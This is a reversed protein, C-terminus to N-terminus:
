PVCVGCVAPYVCQGASAHATEVNHPRCHWVSHGLIRGLVPQLKPNSALQQSVSSWVVAGGHLRRAAAAALGPLAAAARAAAAPLGRQQDAFIRDFWPTPKSVVRRYVPLLLRAASGPAVDSARRVPRSSFHLIEGSSSNRM